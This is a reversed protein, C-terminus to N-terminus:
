PLQVGALRRSFDFQMTTAATSVGVITVYDGSVMDAYPALSGPTASLVLAKGATGFVSGCAAATDSSVVNFRQNAAAGNAAIGIATANAATGASAKYYKNDTHLFVPQGATITEGAICVTGLYVASSSPIFNAATITIDAM